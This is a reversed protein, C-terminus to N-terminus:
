LIEEETQKYNSIKKDNDFSFESLFYKLKIDKSLGMSSPDFKFKIGNQTLYSTLNLMQMYLEEM